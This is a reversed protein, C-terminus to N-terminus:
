VDLMQLDNSHQVMQEMYNYRAAPVALERRMARVVEALWDLTSTERRHEILERSVQDFRHWSHSPLVPTIESQWYSVLVPCFLDDAIKHEMSTFVEPPFNLTIQLKKLFRLVAPLLNQGNPVVIAVPGFLKNHIHRAPMYDVQKGLVSPAEGPMRQSAPVTRWKADVLWLSAVKRIIGNENESM